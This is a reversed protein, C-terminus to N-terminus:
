YLNSQYYIKKNIIGDETVIHVIYIGSTLDRLSVSNNLGNIQETKVLAGLYNYINIHGKPGIKENFDVTLFGNNEYISINDSLSPPETGLTTQGALIYENPTSNYAYDKITISNSTATCRVWGYYTDTNVILKLGCYIDGTPLACYMSLAFIDILVSMDNDWILNQNVTDNLYIDNRDDFITCGGSVKCTNCTVTRRQMSLWVGDQMQYHYHRAWFSFDNISDLNLDFYYSVISDQSQVNPEYITTDPDIDTYVIQTKAQKINLGLALLTILLIRYTKGLESPM